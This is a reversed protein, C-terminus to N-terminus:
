PRREVTLEPTNRGPKVEITLGSTEPANYRAAIVPKPPPKDPDASVPPTLAVKYSGPLAGDNDGVTSLQFSGDPQVTGAASAKGAVPALTIEYGALSSADSGDKFKIRGAVPATSSGSCGIEAALLAALFLLTRRTLNM